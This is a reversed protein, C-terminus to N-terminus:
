LRASFGEYTNQLVGNEDSVEVIVSAVADENIKITWGDHLTVGNASYFFGDTDIMRLLYLGYEGPECLPAQRTEGTKVKSITATGWVTTKLNEQTQPLIWVDAERIGNVFTVTQHNTTEMLNQEVKQCGCLLLALICIALIVTKKM